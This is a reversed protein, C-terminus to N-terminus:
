AAPAPVPPVQPHLIQLLEDLLALLAPGITAATAILKQILLLLDPLSITRNELAKALAGLKQHLEPM